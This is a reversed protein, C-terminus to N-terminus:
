DFYGEVRYKAASGTGGAISAFGSVAGGITLIAVSTSNTLLPTGATTAVFERIATNIKKQLMDCSSGAHLRVEVSREGVANGATATSEVEYLVAKADGSPVTLSECKTALTAQTAVFGNARCFNPGIRAFGWACSKTTALTGNSSITLVTNGAAQFYYQGAFDQYGPIPSATNFVFNGNGQRNGATSAFYFAGGVPQWIYAGSGGGVVLGGKLEMDGTATIDAVVSGNVRWTHLNATQKPPSDVVVIETDSDDGKITLRNGQLKPDIPGIQVSSFTQANASAAWFIALCAMGLARIHSRM